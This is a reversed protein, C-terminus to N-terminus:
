HVSGGRGTAGVWPRKVGLGIASHGRRAECGAASAGARVQDRYKDALYCIIAGSEPLKLPGDVQCPPRHTHKLTSAPILHLSGSPILGHRTFLTYVVICKHKNICDV